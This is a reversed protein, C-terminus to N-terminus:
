KLKPKLSKRGEKVTTDTAEMLDLEAIKTWEAYISSLQKKSAQRPDTGGLVQGLHDEYSAWIEGWRRESQQRPGVFRSTPLNPPSDFALYRREAPREALQVVVPRHPHFAVEERPKVEQVAMALHIDIVFFDIRSEKGPGM